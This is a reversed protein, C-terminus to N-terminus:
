RGRVSLILALRAHSKYQSAFLRRCGSSHFIYSFTKCFSISPLVSGGITYGFIYLEEADYMAPSRTELDASQPREMAELDVKNEKLYTQVWAADARAGTMRRNYHYMLAGGAAAVLLSFFFFLGGVHAERLAVSVTALALNTTVVWKVVDWRQIKGAAVLRNCDELNVRAIKFDDPTM